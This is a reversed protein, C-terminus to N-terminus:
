GPEKLKVMHARRKRVVWLVAALGLIGLSIPLLWRLISQPEERTETKVLPPGLPLLRSPELFEEAGSRNGREDVAYRAGAINDIATTGAPLSFQFVKPDVPRNIEIDTLHWRVSAVTKDNRTVHAHVEAPFYYGPAAETFKLVERVSEVRGSGDPTDVIIRHKRVLFNVGPDFWLEETTNKGPSYTMIVIQREDQVVTKTSLVEKDKLIQLLDFFSTPATSEPDTPLAVILAYYWVDCQNSPMASRRNIALVDMEKGKHVTHSYAKMVAGTEVVKGDLGQEKWVIGVNDQSRWYEGSQVNKNDYDNTQIVRCHFSRIADVSARHGNQVVSVDNEALGDPVGFVLTMFFVGIHCFMWSFFRPQAMVPERRLHLRNAALLNFLHMTSFSM